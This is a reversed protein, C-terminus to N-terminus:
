GSLSDLFEQGSKTIGNRTWLVNANFVYPSEYMDNQSETYFIAFNQKNLSEYSWISTPLPDDYYHGDNVLMEAILNVSTVTM